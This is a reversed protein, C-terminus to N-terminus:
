ARGYRDPSLSGVSISPPAEAVLEAVIKGTVPALSVGMMGHGAAVIVNEHRQTRGLYPLGDPSCPRFGHWWEGRFDATSLSPFYELTSEVIGLIRTENERPDFGNLEMTGGVRLRGGLPTVAVRAEALISPVRLRQPPDELTTSYGKGPQMPLELGITRALLGSWAGAALVFEDGLITDVEGRARRVNVGVVSEARTTFGTVECGFEFEVGGAALSRQMARMLRGPDLHADDPFHVGGVVSLDIDPELAKVGRADLVEARAGLEHALEVVGAEDDLGKQTACLMSLGRRELGVDEGLGKVLALYEDRSALNLALLLPASRRVRRATGARWFRWAWAILDASLRPRVYFPSKPNAMWRIGQAVVGPAALPVFHSPVIMGANGYSATAREAGERDIVVVELDRQRLYHACMLGIVGAGIVVVRKSV